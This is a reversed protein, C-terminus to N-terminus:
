FVLPFAECLAKAEQNVRGIVDDDSIAHIVETIMEALQEMEALGFGRTTVAPTGLRIGGPASPRKRDFPIVNKNCCIGAEELRNAVLRGDLGVQSVDVLMLHNDTGGSILAFGRDALGKALARSNRVVQESYQKFEPQAAEHFCVAKSAITHMLPGGQIGPFVARDIAKAHEQKCLILGGRPGRLTKHTTSTVVDAYPVPSPHVGGVVLGAIHAIDVILYAGVRDCIQRLRAFDLIRPYSSAGAVIARPHLAVSERELADYDITFTEPSVGYHAFRYNQGSFSLASGHTLHGGHDLDMSLILDGLDLLAMYAAANAQSGSHPQVNAHEAGFLEKARDIALQEVQDVLQCGNYWRHRPTGEAYKNTLASGMAAMVAPSVYNESAILVITERQRELDGQVVAALEPDVDYLLSLVATACQPMLAEQTTSPMTTAVTM